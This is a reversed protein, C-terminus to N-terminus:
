VRHITIRQAPEDIEAWFQSRCAPCTSPNGASAGRRNQDSVTALVPSGCGLCRFALNNGWPDCLVPFGKADFCLFGTVRM